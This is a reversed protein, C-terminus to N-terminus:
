IDLILVFAASRVLASFVLDVDKGFEQPTCGVVKKGKLYAPVNPGVMWNAAASYEKGASRESAGLAVVEFWPHNELHELFRQGVAGTAGLIGVKYPRSPKFGSPATASTVM